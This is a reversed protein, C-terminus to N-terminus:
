IFTSKTPGKLELRIGGPKEFISDHKVTKNM